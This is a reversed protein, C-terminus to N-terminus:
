QAGEWDATSSVVSADSALVGGAAFRATNSQVV